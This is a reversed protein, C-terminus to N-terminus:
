DHYDDLEPECGDMSLSFWEFLQFIEADRMGFEIPRDMLTVVVSEWGQERADEGAAFVNQMQTECLWEMDEFVRLADAHYLSEPEALQPVVYRLRIVSLDEDWIIDYYSAQVGSPLILPADQAFAQAAGCLALASVAAQEVSRILRGAGLM